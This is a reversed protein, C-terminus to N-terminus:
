RNNPYNSCCQVTVFCRSSQCFGLCPWALAQRTYTLVTMAYVHCYLIACSSPLNTNEHLAVCRELTHYVSCVLM